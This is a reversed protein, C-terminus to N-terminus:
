FSSMNMIKKLIIKTRRGLDYIGCFLPIAYYVAKSNLLHRKFILKISTYNVHILLRDKLDKTRSNEVV